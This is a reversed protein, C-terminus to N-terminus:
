DVEPKGIVRRNSSTHNRKLQDQELQRIRKSRWAHLVDAFLAADPGAPFHLSHPLHRCTEHIPDSMPLRGLMTCGTAM